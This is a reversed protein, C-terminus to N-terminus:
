LIYYLWYSINLYNINIIYIYVTNKSLILIFLKKLILRNKESIM